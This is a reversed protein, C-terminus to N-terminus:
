TERGAASRDGGFRFEEFRGNELDIHAMVNRFLRGRRLLIKLVEMTQLTAILAVTVAPVGLLAEPREPDADGTEAVGYLQELGPDGPCVTM